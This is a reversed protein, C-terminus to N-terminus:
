ILYYSEASLNRKDYCEKILERLKFLILAIKIFEKEKYKASDLLASYMNQMLDQYDIAIEFM